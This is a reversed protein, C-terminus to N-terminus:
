GAMFKEISDMTKIIDKSLIECGDKTILIDDEIRVGIGWERNYIGPEITTVVGEALYKGEEGDAHVDHAFLGLPHGGGHFHYKKLDDDNKTLGAKRLEIKIFERAKESISEFSVGPKMNSISDLQCNLVIEYIMRQRENYKGSVPYTRTIDATYYNCHAGADILVLESDHCEKLGPKYHLTTANIGAAVISSFGFGTNQKRVPEEFDMEIECESKGSKLKKVANILGENTLIIAKRLVDIEEPQKIFRLSNIVTGANKILAFPCRNMVASIVSNLQPREWNPYPACDFYVNTYDLGGSSGIYSFLKLESSEYCVDTIESLEMAKDQRLSPGNAREMRENIPPLFLMCETKEKKKTIFLILDPFDLGTLYFFNRDIEFPFFQDGARRPPIGSLFVCISNDEIHEIFRKRNNTFFATNM